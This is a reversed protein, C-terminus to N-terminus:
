HLAQVSVDKSQVLAVILAAVVITLFRRLSRLTREQCLVSM